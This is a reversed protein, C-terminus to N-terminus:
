GSILVGNKKNASWLVQWFFITKISSYFFLFKNEEATWIDVVM